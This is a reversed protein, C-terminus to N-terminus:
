YTRGFKRWFRKKKRLSIKTKVLMWNMAEMLSTKPSFICKLKQFVVYEEACYASQRFLDDSLDADQHECIGDEGLLEVLSGCVNHNASGGGPDDYCQGATSSIVEPYEDLSTTEECVSNV